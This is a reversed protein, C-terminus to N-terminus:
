RFSPYQPQRWTREKSQFRGRRERRICTHTGRGTLIDPKRISV